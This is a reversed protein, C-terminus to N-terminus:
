EKEGRQGRSLEVAGSLCAPYDCMRIVSYKNHMNEHHFGNPLVEGAKVLRKCTAGHGMQAACMLANWGRKDIEEINM